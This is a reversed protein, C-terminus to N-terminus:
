ITIKCSFTHNKVTSGLKLGLVKNLVPICGYGRSKNSTM